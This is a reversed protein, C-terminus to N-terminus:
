QHLLGSASVRHDGSVRPPGFHEGLARKEEDRPQRLVGGGGFNGLIRAEPIRQKWNQQFIYNREIIKSTKSVESSGFDNFFWQKKLTKALVSIELQFMGKADDQSLLQSIKTGRNVLIAGFSVWLIGWIGGFAGLTKGFVLLLHELAGESFGVFRWSVGLVWM